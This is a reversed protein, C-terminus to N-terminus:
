RPVRLSYVAKVIILIGAVLIMAGEFGASFYAIKGHGYPHDEDRPRAAYYLSFIAFGGAVVNIISELADSFIADSRTLAYAFFKGTMVVAGVAVVWRLTRSQIQFNGKESAPNVPM